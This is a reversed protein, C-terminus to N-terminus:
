EEKKNDLNLGEKQKEKLEEIRKAAAAKSLDEDFVEGTEDSLTKLYSKERGTMSETGTIWEDPDKKANSGTEASINPDPQSADPRISKDTQENIDNHM